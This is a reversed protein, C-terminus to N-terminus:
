LWEFRSILALLAIVGVAGGAIYYVIEQKVEEFEPTIVMNETVTNLAYNWKKFVHGDLYPNPWDTLLSKVDTGFAISITYIGDSQQSWGSPIDDIKSGNLDVSVNCMGDVWVAYFTVTYVSNAVEALSVSFEDFTLPSTANRELAWGRIIKSGYTGDLVEYPKMSLKDGVKYITDDIPAKGTGGNSNYSIKYNQPTWSATLKISDGSKETLNMVYAGNAPSKGDAWSYWVDGNLSFLANKSGLNSSTWGNFVYGTREPIGLPTSVDYYATIKMYPDSDNIRFEITYQITSWVAKFTIINNSDASSAMIDTLKVTEGSKGIPTVGNISWGAFVYGSKTVKSASALKIDGGIVGSVDGGDVEGAGGNLDFLLGFIASEWNATFVIKGGEVDTLNLYQTTKALSTGDWPSFVSGVKYQSCDSNVGTATWGTFRSASKTPNSIELETGYYGATPSYMGLSGGNLVYEITYSQPKWVPYLYVKAKSAYSAMDETFTDYNETLPTNSGIKFTWGIQTYGKLEYYTKTTSGATFTHPDVSFSSGVRYPEDHKQPNSIKIAGEDICTYEIYYDLLDWVAKITITYGDDTAYSALESDLTLEDGSNPKKSHDGKQLLWGELKHYDNSVVIDENNPLTFKTGFEISGRWEGETLWGGNYDLKVDYIRNSSKVYLNVVNNTTAKSLIDRSVEGSIITDGNKLVWGQFEMHEKKMDAYQPLNLQQGIKITGIADLQEQTWTCIWGDTEHNLVLKYPTEVWEANFTIVRFNENGQDVMEQSLHGDTLADSVKKKNEGDGFTWYQFTWGLSFDNKIFTKPLQSLITADGETVVITDCVLGKFGTNLNITYKGSEFDLVLTSINDESSENKLEELSVIFSGSHYPGVGSRHEFYSQKFAHSSCKVDPFVLEGSTLEAVSITDKWVDGNNYERGGILVKGITRDDDINFKLKISYEIPEYYIHLTLKGTVSPDGDFVTSENKMFQVFSMGRETCYESVNYQETKDKSDTCKILPGDVIVNVKGSLKFENVLQGDFKVDITTDKYDVRLYYTANSIAKFGDSLPMSGTGKSPYWGKYELYTKQEEM